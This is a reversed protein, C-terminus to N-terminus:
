KDLTRVGLIVILVVSKGERKLTSTTDWSFLRTKNFWIFLYGGAGVDVGVLVCFLFDKMKSPPVVKHPWRNEKKISPQAEYARMFQCSDSPVKSFQTKCFPQLFPCDKLQKQGNMIWCCLRGLGAYIHAKLCSTLTVSALCAHHLVWSHEPVLHSLCWGWIM